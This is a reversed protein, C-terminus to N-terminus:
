NEYKKLARFVYRAMADIETNLLSGEKIKNITTMQWTHPIISVLFDENIVDNVTLSIGDLTISGKKILFKAIEKEAKLQIVTSDGVDLVKKVVSIGDIHGFVMHGSIDDGFKLSRELNIEDGINKMSLNTKTITENSLNCFFKKKEKKAVTLCIGSCCISEGLKIQKFDSQIGLIKNKKDFCKISGLKQIIGSFM